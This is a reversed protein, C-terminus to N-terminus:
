LNNVDINAKVLNQNHEDLTRAFYMRGTEIDACFYKYGKSLDANFIAVMANMGPNCVPGPPLGESIYTNYSEALSDILVANSQNRYPVICTNAYKETVDSELRPFTDPNRLRYLFVAAVDNMDDVSAAEWQIVSALTMFEDLGWGELGHSKWMDYIRRYMEPKLQTNMHSFITRAAVEAYDLTNIDPDIEMDFGNVVFFEHTEPFLYGEMQNFRLPNEVIRKEFNFVNFKTKYFTMFDEARCVKNEELLEAIDKATMGETIKVMVTETSKPRNQLTSILQSYSMTSSISFLGSLYDGDKKTFRSYFTFLGPMSIIGVDERSLIEAIEETTCDPPIDIFLTFENNSIGSFDLFARVVFQSLLASATIILVVLVLSGFIHSFTRVHEQRRKMRRAFAKKKRVAEIQLMKPDRKRPVGAASKTKAKNGSKASNATKQPNGSTRLKGSTRSKASDAPSAFGDEVGMKIPSVGSSGGVLKGVNGGSEQKFFVEDAKVSQPPTPVSMAADSQPNKDLVLSEPAIRIDDDDDLVPTTPKGANFPSTATKFKEFDKLDM